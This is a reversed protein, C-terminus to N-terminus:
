DNRGREIQIFHLGSRSAEVVIGNSDILFAPM